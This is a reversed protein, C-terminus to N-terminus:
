YIVSTIFLCRIIFLLTFEINARYILFDSVGVSALLKPVLCPINVVSADCVMWLLAEWVKYANPGEFFETVDVHQYGYNEARNLRFIYLLFKIPEKVVSVLRTPPSLFINRTPM